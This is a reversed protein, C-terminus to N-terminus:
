RILYFVHFYLLDISPVYIMISKHIEPFPKKKNLRKLITSLDSSRIIVYLITDRHARQANQQNVVGFCPNQLLMGDGFPEGDDATTFASSEKLLFTDFSAKGSAGSGSKKDLDDKGQLM